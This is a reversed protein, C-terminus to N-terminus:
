HRRLHGRPGTDENGNAEQMHVSRRRIGMVALACAGLVAATGILLRAWDLAGLGPVDVVGTGPPLLVGWDQLKGAVAGLLRGIHKLAWVGAGCCLLALIWEDFGWNTPDGIGTRREAPM